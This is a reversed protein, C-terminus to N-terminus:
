WSSVYYIMQTEFDTTELVTTIIDITEKINDVYYQDYYFGDEMIPILKGNEYTYGNQIKDKILKCSNLVRQCIDLLEELIEKTVENHYKCDDIGDQVNEVFWKHIQNAKRWYGVEEIIRYRGSYKKETDWYAYGFKYHEKYFKLAKGKRYKAIALAVCWKEMTGNYTKNEKQQKWDMYSEIASIEDPTTNGYRPMRELYSDLGM